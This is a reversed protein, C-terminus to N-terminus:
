VTITRRVLRLLNDNVKVTLRPYFVMAEGSSSYFAADAVAKAGTIGALNAVSIVGDGAPDTQTFDALAPGFFYLRGSGTPTGRGAMTCASARLRASRVTHAGGAGTVAPPSATPLFVNSGAVAFAGALFTFDDWLSAALENFYAGVAIRLDNVATTVDGPTTPGRVVMNHQFGAAIYTAKYRLTFDPAYDTM